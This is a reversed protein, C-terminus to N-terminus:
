LRKTSNVTATNLSRLLVDIQAQISCKAGDVLKLQGLTRKVLISLRWNFQLHDQMSTFNINNKEILRELSTIVCNENVQKLTMFRIILNVTSWKLVSLQSLYDMNWDDHNLMRGLEILDPNDCIKRDILIPLLFGAGDLDATKRGCRSIYLGWALKLEDCTAKPTKQDQKISSLM